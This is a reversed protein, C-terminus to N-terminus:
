EIKNWDNSLLKKIANVIVKPNDNQIYHTSNDVIVLESMTSIDLIDKQMENWLEQSERSYHAKKGAALVILPVDMKKKNEKLQILSEIFEDYSGEYIFQNNYAKQFEMSMTPLFRERYDEPTSDVLVIGSVEQPYISAYLRVNVGGFSHGVLIYPPIINLKILVDKLEKVMHISTRPNLSKESKGLGARDYVFIETLTSIEPAISEWAKSYDGYGADMIITPKEKKKGYVKTFLKFSNLQVLTEKRAEKRAQPTIQTYNM